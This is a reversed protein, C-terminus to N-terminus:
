EKSIEYPGLERDVFERHFNKGMLYQTELEVDRVLGSEIVVDDVVDHTIELINDGKVPWHEEDLEYIFWYGSGTRYRPASMRYLQNIKRLLAEPLKKGNLKFTYEDLETTGMIRVRLIVKHVRGVKDWKRLDDSITLTFPETQGEGQIPRTLQMTLGPETDPSDHRESVTPLYYIKDRAEMVEPYPLERLKEYFPAKYPWNGFWHALYLGDVGQAWYNTAVGRIFEIPGQAVRDSDVNSQVAAHVRTKTGRTAEVLERFNSMGNVLEPGSFDQAVIVDVIGKEVWDIVDMGVSLCGKVSAPIRVVLERDAGSAKVEDHVRKIWETMIPVGDQVHGPHFYYPMYNMQLEFGDCDYNQLTEQILDFREDRIEQHKFDANQFGKFNPDVDGAAGIDLHKNNFRFQSGRTDTAPDGSGQQVLLVPYFAKGYQHARDAIIQLPDNGEEILGKANQHARRFIAHSWKDNAHGWLEGVKTDHLVTRGDGMCFNICDVPTGILEDVGQEYEEKQMPPEYMYILPHRGDHYFMLKPQSM